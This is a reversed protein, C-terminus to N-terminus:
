LRGKLPFPQPEEISTEMEVLHCPEEVHADELFSCLYDLVVRLSAQESAYENLKTEIEKLTLGSKYKLM